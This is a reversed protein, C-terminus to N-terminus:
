APTMRLLVKNAEAPHDHAFAIAAPAEAFPFRHSVMPRMAEGRRQVIDVAQGFVGANNRCGLITLEKRTFLSVPLSVEELSIGAIVIRGAYAVVDVATRIVAPAGTADMVVSAGDGNTWDMVADAGDAALAVREAGLTRALELRSPLRDMVLCRAGRDISAIMAAQGIPGAGFIAVTDGPGVQGRTIMQMGISLPEILATLEADLSGVPFLHTVPVTLYEAFAGTTHIGLVRLSTCCNPRAHRCPYCSGCSLLPEVTVRDGVRVAGSYGPGFGAVIASFEHGQITPYKAYPNHGDYFHLDSGCIGAVEIKLLAEGPGAHPDPVDQIEMHSAATTVAAKM